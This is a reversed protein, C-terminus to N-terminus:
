AGAERVAQSRPLRERALRFLQEANEGDDPFLAQGVRLQWPGGPLKGCEGQLAALLRRRMLTAQEHIEPALHMLTGDEDIGWSDTERGVRGPLAALASRLFADASSPRGSADRLQLLTLTFGLHYRKSRLIERELERSFGRYEPRGPELRAGGDGGGRGEDGGGGGGLKGGAGGDGAPAAQRAEGAAAAPKAERAGLRLMAEAYDFQQVRGPIWSRASDGVVADVRSLDDTLGPSSAFPIGMINAYTGAYSDEGSWLGVIRAGGGKRCRELMPLIEADRGALIWQQQGSPQNM